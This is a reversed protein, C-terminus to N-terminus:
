LQKWGSRVSTWGVQLMLIIGEAEESVEETALSLGHHGYPYIHLEFPRKHKRLAKAYALSNEVPVAADEVTHWLFTAPPTKDHVKKEMSMSQYVQEEKGKGLLNTFSGSHMHEGYLIVPYSLIAGKIRLGKTDIGKVERLWQEEYMNSISACLHGGGASFGCVFVKGLDVKWEEANEIVISLARMGDFLPRPHRRPAVSYDVVVSHYGASAYAMAIPEAERPSTFGYGGGPFIVVIGRQNEGSRIYTTMTPRFDDEMESNYDYGNWLDIKTQIM